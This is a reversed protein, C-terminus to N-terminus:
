HACLERLNHNERKENTYFLHIAGQLVSDVEGQGHRERIIVALASSAVWSLYFGGIFKILSFNSQLFSM